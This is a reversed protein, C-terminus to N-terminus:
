PNQVLLHQIIQQCEQDWHGNLLNPCFHRQFALITKELDTVDYGYQSLAESPSLTGSPVKSAPSPPYVGIGNEALLGWPFLEGPDEKRQPAIDSHGVVNRASILPHRRLISQCLPILATIQAEPFPRYGFEHGPNVIEIGISRCNINTKGRWSSLGAHWARYDENVLQYITGDEDIMYHASVEFGPDCMRDLAAKASTMGTYHLVLMDVPQLNRRANFNPSPHHIVTM